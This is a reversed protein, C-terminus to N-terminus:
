HQANRSLRLAILLFKSPFVELIKLMSVHLSLRKARHLHEYGTDLVYVFSLHDHVYHGICIVALLTCESATAKPTPSRAFVVLLQVDVMDVNCKKYSSCNFFGTNRSSFLLFCARVSLVTNQTSSCAPVGEAAEGGGDSCAPLPVLSEFLECKAVYATWNGYAM